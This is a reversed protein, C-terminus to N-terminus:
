LRSGKYGYVNPAHKGEEEAVQAALAKARRRMDARQEDTFSYSQGGQTVNPALSLWLLLGAEALRSDTDAADANPDIGHAAAMARITDAQVPYASVARLTDFVTAM